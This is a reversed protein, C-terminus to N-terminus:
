KRVCRVSLMINKNNTGPWPTGFDWRQAVDGSSESSSWYYSVPYGSTTDFGGIASRNTVLVELEDLAPVYWDSHRYAGLEACVVFANSTTGDGPNYLGDGNSVHAYIDATNTAGTITSTSGTPFNYTGWAAGSSQDAPTTFMPVNGDPSFGAYVTGDECVNGVDPCAGERRVCRVNNTRTKLDNSFGVPGFVGEIGNNAILETSTWYDEGGEFGGIASRNKVLVIMEHGSPLYWDTKSHLSLNACTEFAPYSSLTTNAVIWRHNAAGNEWDDAGTDTSGPGWADSQDSVQDSAAVYLAACSTGDIVFGAFKSGDSCTAGPTSCDVPATCGGGGTEDFETWDSGDCYEFPPTGGTYRITGENASGCAASDAGVRVGAAQWNTGDCVLTVEAGNGDADAVVRTAGTPFGACSAGPATDTGALQALASTPLVACAFIAVALSYKSVNRMAAELETKLKDCEM